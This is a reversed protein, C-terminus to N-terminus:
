SVKENSGGKATTTKIGEWSRAFSLGGGLASIPLAVFEIAQPYRIGLIFLLTMGYFCMSTSKSEFIHKM